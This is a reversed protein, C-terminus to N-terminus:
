SKQLILDRQSQFNVVIGVVVILMTPNNTCYFLSFLKLQFGFTTRPIVTIKGTPLPIQPLLRPSAVNESKPHVGAATGYIVQKDSEKPGRKWRYLSGEYLHVM